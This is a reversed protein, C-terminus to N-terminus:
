WSAWYTYSYDSLDDYKCELKLEDITKIYDNLSDIYWSDYQYGGFFFGRSCPLLKDAVETNAFTEVDTFTDKGNAWGSKVSITKMEGSKFSELVALCRNYLEILHEGEVSVDQCEDLGGACEDIFFKHFWNCKRWDTLEQSIEVAEIEKGNLTVKSKKAGDYDWNKVHTKKLLGHDLGM